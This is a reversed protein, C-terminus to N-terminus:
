ENYPIEALSNIYYVGNFDKLANRLWVESQTKAVYLNIIIAHKGEVSRITRGVRQIMDRKQSNGAAIIALSLDPVDIGENAARVTALVKKSKDVEFTAKANKRATPKLKSHLLVTVDPISQYVSDAFAIDESFVVTRRTNFKQLCELVVPLKNQTTQCLTKRLRMYRMFLAALRKQEPTGIKLFRMADELGGVLAAYKKFNTDADTYARQEDPTFPVALNFITYPSVWKNAICEEIPVNGILPAKALLMKDMGDNREITATLLLTPKDKISQFIKSFEPAGYRHAEDLIYFDYYREEKYATNIVMVDINTNYMETPTQLLGRWQLLLDITPVIILIKANPILRLLRRIAMLGVRSKGFGTAAVITGNFKNQEVTAALQMQREDRTM